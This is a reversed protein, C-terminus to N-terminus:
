SKESSIGWCKERRGGSPTIKKLAGGRVQFGPDAGPNNQWLVKWSTSGLIVFLPFINHPLPFPYIIVKFYPLPPPMYKQFSVLAQSYM